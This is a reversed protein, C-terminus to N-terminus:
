PKLGKKRLRWIYAVPVLPALLLIPALGIPFEPTPATGYAGSVATLPILAGYVDAAESRSLTLPIYGPSPPLDAIVDFWIRCVPTNGTFGNPDGDFTKYSVSVYDPGIESPLSSVFPGYSM